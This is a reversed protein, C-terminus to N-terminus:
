GDNPSGDPLNIEYRQQFAEDFDYVNDFDERQDSESKRMLGIRIMNYVIEGFDSTSLVGWNNLVVKAMYGYQDLAFQRIAECLQQGTLHREPQGSKAEAATEPAIEGGSEVQDKGLRLVEQAYSLGDRVFLYADLKYRQDLQILELLARQPDSM